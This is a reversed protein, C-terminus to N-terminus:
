VLKEFATQFDDEDRLYTWNPVRLEPPAEESRISRVVLPILRKGNKMAHELEEKCVKSIVSDPSLLFLFNDTEEIGKLVEKRWDVTPEISKWDIWFDLGKSSFAEALRRATEKDKRSCSIFLSAM